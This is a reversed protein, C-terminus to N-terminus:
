VKEPRIRELNAADPDEPAIERMINKYEQAQKQFEPKHENLGWQVAKNFDEHKYGIRFHSKPVMKGQLEARLVAARKELVTKKEPSLSDPTGDRLIKEMRRLRAGIINGDPRVEPRDFQKMYDLRRQSVLLGGDKGRNDPMVLGGNLDSKMEAIQRKYRERQQLSLIERQKTQTSM